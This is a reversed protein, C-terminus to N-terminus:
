IALKASKVALFHPRYRLYNCRLVAFLQLLNKKAPPDFLWLLFGANLKIRFSVSGEISLMKLAGFTSKSQM